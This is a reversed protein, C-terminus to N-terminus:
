CTSIVIGLLLVAYTTKLVVPSRGHARVDDPVVDDPEDTNM